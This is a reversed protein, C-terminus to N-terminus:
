EREAVDGRRGQGGGEPVPSEEIVTRAPARFKALESGVDKIAPEQDSKITIDLHEYGTDNIFTGVRRAAFEHGTGKIPM